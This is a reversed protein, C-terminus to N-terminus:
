AAAPLADDRHVWAPVPPISPKRRGFGSALYRRLTALSFHGIQVVEDGADFDLLARYFDNLGAERHHFRADDAEKHFVTGPVSGRFVFRRPDLEAHADIHIDDRYRAAIVEAIQRHTASPRDLWPSPFVADFNLAVNGVSSLVCAVNSIWTRGLPNHRALYQMALRGTLRHTLRRGRADPDVCTLGLHLVHPVGPVDLLIGACFGLMRGDRDRAVTIVKDDLAALGRFVQYDPLADFCTEGVRRLADVLRRADAPALTRAPRHYFEIRIDRSM